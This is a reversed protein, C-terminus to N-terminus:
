WSGDFELAELFVVLLLPLELDLLRHMAQSLLLGFAYEVGSFLCECYNLNLINVIYHLIIVNVLVYSWLIVQMCSLADQWQKAEM